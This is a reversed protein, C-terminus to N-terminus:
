FGAFATYFHNWVSNVPGCVKVAVAEHNCNSFGDNLLWELLIEAKVRSLGVNCVFVFMAVFLLPIMGCLLDM